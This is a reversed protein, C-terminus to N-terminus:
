DRSILVKLAGTEAANSFCEWAEDFQDFTFRHSIFKTSDLREEALLRLLMPITTTSVLGTSINVDYIWLDELHLTVSEGHVGVNAVNGGPRIIDTCMEFTRPIGVAEIAVDVGLDHETKSKVQEVWDEDSSIVYDTAGFDLAKKCRTEDLDIAIVKAAGYFGATIMASLGIPGAGVVAVTDGPKVRGKVVGIEFGTPIIDSLMLAAENPVNDPIHYMSTDAYPMRIMEAQTGNILHGQIWGVGKAGEEGMCHSPLGDRCYSCSGCANVCSLLVRDGPKFQTVGSGVEKVIGVGEHGLITGPKVAPVDGKLIHLDTGCITTAKIEVIADEPKLIKPDPVEAVERKGVGQYLVAKM